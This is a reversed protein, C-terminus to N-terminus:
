NHFFFLDRASFRLSCSCLFFSTASLSRGLLEVGRTQCTLTKSSSAGALYPPTNAFLKCSARNLFAVMVFLILFITSYTPHWMVTCLESIRELNAHEFQQLEKINSM